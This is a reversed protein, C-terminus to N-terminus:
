VTAGRGTQGGTTTGSGSGSGYATSASSQNSSVAVSQSTLPRDQATQIVLFSSSPMSDPEKTLNLIDFECEDELWSPLELLLSIDMEQVERPTALALFGSSVENLCFATISDQEKHIIRVPEPLSMSSPGQVDSAAGSMGSSVGTSDKSDQIDGIGGVGLGGGGNLVALMSRKKGFVARIFIDQVEEQRVLYSWLRRAPAASPLRSNFPTNYRDLLSRYKHIAPGTNTGSDVYCGPIYDQPPPGRAELDDRLMDQWQGVVRLVGHVLPSCVPLEQLEIGAVSLFEHLQHQILRVIALRLVCWSYSSPNSHETNEKISTRARLTAASGEFVDEEEEDDDRDGDEGDSIQSDASDYDVYADDNPIAPKLLFYSVMSMEPPVFQERYTPRDEKMNLPQPTGGPQSGPQGLLRMNLRVRQKSLSTTVTNWVGEGVGM